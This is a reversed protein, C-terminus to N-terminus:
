GFFTLLTHIIYLHSWVFSNSFHCEYRGYRFIRRTFNKSLIEDFKSRRLKSCKQEFYFLISSKVNSSEFSLNWVQNQWIDFEIFRRNTQSCIQRNRKYISFVLLITTHKSIRKHLIFIGHNQNRHFIIIQIKGKCRFLYTSFSSQELPVRV